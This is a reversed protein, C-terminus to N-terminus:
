EEVYVYDKLVELQNEGIGRIELLEDVSRFGRYEERYDLIRQAKVEGIDPLLMLDELTARNLDILHEEQRYLASGERITESNPSPARSFGEYLLYGGAGILYFLLPILFILLTKRDKM